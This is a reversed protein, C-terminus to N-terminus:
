GDLEKAKKALSIAEGDKAWFDPGQFAGKGMEGGYNECIKKCILSLSIESGDYDWRAYKGGLFTATKASEDTIQLSSRPSKILRLSDGVKLYGRDVLITMTLESRKSAIKIEDAKQNKERMKVTFEEASPLPIVQEIDIYKEQGIQYPEMELCKIDMRDNKNLWLVATTVEKSFSPSILMIKPTESITIEEEQQDLFNIIEDRANIRTEGPHLKKSLFDEYASVVDEFTMMSVMAAYRIAQLEMHSGGAIRKLEIVVLNAEKDIALLDISRSSEQWNSYEESILFLGPNKFIGQQKFVDVFNDRLMVRLGREMNGIEEYRSPKIEFMKLNEDVTFLAM